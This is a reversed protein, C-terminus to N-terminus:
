YSYELSKLDGNAPKLDRHVEDLSHIYELGELIQCLIELIDSVHSRLMQEWRPLKIEETRDGYAELHSMRNLLHRTYRSKEKYGKIENQLNNRCLEMDIQYAGGMSTSAEVAQHHFMQVLLHRRDNSCLKELARIENKIDNEHLNGIM